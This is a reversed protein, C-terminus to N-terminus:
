YGRYQRDMKDLIEKALDEQLQMQNLFEETVREDTTDFEYSFTDPLEALLNNSDFVQQARQREQSLIENFLSFFFILM